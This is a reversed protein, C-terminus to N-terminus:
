EIVENAAVLLSTPMTVGLAKATKLNIVLDFTTPNEVPLDAPNAGKLIKDVLGAARLYLNTYDAAFSMFGGDFAFERAAYVAPLKQRAALDIILARNPRTTGDVGVRIADVEGSAMKAFAYTIDDANRVDYSQVEISMSHAASKSEDFQMLVATNRFDGLASLRKLGPLAERLLQLRKAELETVFSSMGTINGGPRSLSAAVGIGVPDVVASMVVPVTSTAHKVALIEPTGRVVMLDVKLRLLESVLEPLRENHGDASRYEVILNQGEAYGADHLGKFLASIETNLERPTTDLVGIRWVKEIQQARVALPWAAAGGALGIFQRRRM